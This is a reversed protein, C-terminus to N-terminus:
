GSGAPLRVEVRTGGLPSDAVAVAGGHASVLEAVIALGLGTGGSDRARADDLRVFREFVRRREPAPIGPGDDDVAVVVSGDVEAVSFAVRARAHRAATAAVNRLVRALAARDGADRGGSGARPDVELGTTAR